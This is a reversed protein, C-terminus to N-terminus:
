DEYMFPGARELRLKILRAVEPLVDNIVFTWGSVVTPKMM